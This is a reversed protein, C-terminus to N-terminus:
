KKGFFGKKQQNEGFSVTFLRDSMFMRVAGYLTIGLFIAQYLVGCWFLIMNGAILNPVAMYAHTFPIAYMIFKFIVPMDNVNVFMTIFFPLMSAMIIPLMLSTQSKADTVTAGLILSAALGIAISLILQLGFLLYEGASLTIGLTVMAEPISMIASTMASLDAQSMSETITSMDAGGVASSVMAGTM